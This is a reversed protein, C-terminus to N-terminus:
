VMAESHLQQRQKTAPLGEANLQFIHHHTKAQSPTVRIPFLRESDTLDVFVRGLKLRWRLVCRRLMANRM